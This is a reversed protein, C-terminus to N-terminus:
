LDKQKTRKFSEKLAMKLFDAQFFNTQIEFITLM